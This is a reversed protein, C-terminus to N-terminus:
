RPQSRTEIPEFSGADQSDGVGSYKVTVPYPYVPRTMVVRGENDRKEAVLRHPANGREAWDSIVDLWDIRSPGPGAGCHYVGPLLYLRIFENKAAIDIGEFYEISAKATLAGDAWSHWIILKGGSDHFPQLNANDCDLISSARRSDERWNALSYGTPTWKPDDFVLYRCFQSCALGLASQTGTGNLDPGIFWRYWQLESGLPLGPYLSRNNVKPGEYASKLARVQEATLGVIQGWDLQCALPNNIIDDELGDKDDCQELVQQHFDKLQEKSFLPGGARAPTPFFIQMYNIFAAYIGTKSAVPCGAVIGDF